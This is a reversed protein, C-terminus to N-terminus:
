YKNKIKSILLKKQENNLFPCTSILVNLDVTLKYDKINSHIENATTNETIIMCKEGTRGVSEFYDYFKFGNGIVNDSLKVWTSPIGYADSAIIGHLSSSAINKCSCIDEIVKDIDHLINIILIDSNQRFKDLLPSDIDTYHPILGLNYRKEIEPKFFLPYLMAPDGYIEPCDIGQAILIKRTLPGRVALIKKPKQEFTINESIVGSGWVVQNKGIFNGLISGIVWYVNKVGIPYIMTSLLVKKGTMKRILIPNLADGWNNLKGTFWFAVIYNNRNLLYVFTRIIKMCANFIMRNQTTNKM